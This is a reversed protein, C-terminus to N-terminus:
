RVLRLKIFLTAYLNFCDIVRHQKLEPGELKLPETFAHYSESFSIPAGHAVTITASPDSANSIAAVSPANTLSSPSPVEINVPSPDNQQVNVQKRLEDIERQM